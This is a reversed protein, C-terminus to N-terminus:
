DDTEFARWTGWAGFGPKMRLIEAANEAFSRSLQHLEQGNASALVPAQVMAHFQRITM